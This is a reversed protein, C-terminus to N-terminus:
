SVHRPRVHLPRDPVGRRELLGTGDEHVIRSLLDLRGHPGPRDAMPRGSGSAPLRRLELEVLDGSRARSCLGEVHSGAGPGSSEQNTRVPGSSARDVPWPLSSKPSGPERGEPLDQYGRLNRDIRHLQDTVALNRPDKEHAMETVIRAAYAYPYSTESFCGVADWFRERLAIGAAILEDVNLQDINLKEQLEHRLRERVEEFPPWTAMFTDQLMWIENASAVRVNAPPVNADVGLLVLESLDPLRLHDFDGLYPEAQTNAAFQEASQTQPTSDPRRNEGMDLVFNAPINPEFLGADLPVGWQFEDLVVSTRKSSGTAVYSVDVLVPLRTEVDVWVRASFDDMGPANSGDYFAAPDRLEVGAAHKGEYIQEGLEVSPTQLIKAVMRQPHKENLERIQAEDMPRRMYEELPYCVGVSENSRLLRYHRMYLEGDRLSEDLVGYVDSRYVTTATEKAFEFGDPKLGTTEITRIRYVCTDMALVKELAAAWLSNSTRDFLHVGIAAVVVVAAAIAWKAIPRRMIRRGIWRTEGVRTTDTRDNLAAQAAQLIREDASADPTLRLRWALSEIEKPTKM